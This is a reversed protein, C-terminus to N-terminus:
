HRFIQSASPLPLSSNFFHGRREGAIRHNTFSRLLFDLYFFPEIYYTNHQTQRSWNSRQICTDVRMKTKESLLNFTDTFIKFKLFQNLNRTKNRVKKNTQNCSKSESNKYIEIVFNWINRTQWAFEFRFNSIKMIPLPYSFKSIMSVWFDIFDFDICWIIKIETINLVSDTTQCRCLLIERLALLYINRICVIFVEM